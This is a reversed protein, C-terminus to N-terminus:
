TLTLTYTMTVTNTAIVPQPTGLAGASLLVGTTTGVTASAGTGEVVFAGQVTGGTTFTYSLTNSNSISTGGAALANWTVTPRTTGYGPANTSSAELWGSHSAMTDTAAVASYGSATILGLYATSATVGSALLQSKGVNTVLNDFGEAWLLNGESDRCELEYHGKAFTTEGTGAGAAMQAGLVDGVKVLDM